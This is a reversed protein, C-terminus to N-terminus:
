YKKTYSDKTKNGKVLLMVECNECYGELGYASGCVEKPVNCKYVKSIAKSDLPENQIVKLAIERAKLIARREIKPNIIKLITKANNVYLEAIKEYETENIKNIEHEM